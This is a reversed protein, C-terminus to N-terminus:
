KSLFVEKRQMNGIKATQTLVDVLTSVDFLQAVALLDIAQQELACPLDHIGKFIQRASLV